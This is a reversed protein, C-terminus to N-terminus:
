RSIKSYITKNQVFSRKRGNEAAGILHVSRIGVGSICLISLIPVKDLINLYWILKIRFDKKKSWVPHWHGAFPLM